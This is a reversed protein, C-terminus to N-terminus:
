LNSMRCRNRKVSMMMIMSILKLLYNKLILMLM